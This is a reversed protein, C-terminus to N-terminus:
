NFFRDFFSSIISKKKISFPLAENPWGKFILEAAGYLTGLDNDTFNEVLIKKDNLDIYSKFIKGLNKYIDVDEFFINIKGIKKEYYYLDKNNNFTYNLMEKIRVNIIEKFHNLSIKKYDSNVFYKRDIYISKNNELNEIITKAENKSLSCLQNIDSYISNSGFPFTKFFVLSSDQCLSITSLENGINITIFNKLNKNSNLLNINEAFPKSIIRDVKLDSNNFIEKINKLNNDPISVFTMHLSLHDGFINLPAKDQKTKDLIFNSNLIHIISNNIQNKSISNKAENLIYDLDRKEVKSGNLKKFGCLNTCFVDKQNLVVSISKFVKNVNKEIEHLDNSIIKSSYEFDLIKGKKIGANKSIKNTLLKYDLEENTKFVAYKIKDNDFEIILKEDM